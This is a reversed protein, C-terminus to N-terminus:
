SVTLQGKMGAQAHGPVQCEFTYTGAALKATTKQIGATFPEMESGVEKGASDIIAVNHQVQSPNAYVITVTGAKATLTTPNYQLAGSPPSSLKLVAPVAAGAAKKAQDTAQQVQTSVSSSVSSVASSAAQKTSDGCGTAAVACAVVLTTVSALIGTKKM